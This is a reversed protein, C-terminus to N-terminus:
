PRTQPPNLIARELAELRAEVAENDPASEAEEAQEQAATTGSGIEPFGEAYTLGRAKLGEKIYQREDLYQDIEAEWEDGVYGYMSKMTIM